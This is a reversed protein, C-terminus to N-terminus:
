PQIYENGDKDVVTGPEGAAPPSQGGPPVAENEGIFVARRPAQASGNEDKDPRMIEHADKWMRLFPGYAGPKGLAADAAINKFGQIMHDAMARPVLSRHRRKGERGESRLAELSRGKGTLAILFVARMANRRLFRDPGRHVGGNSGEPYRILTGGNRGPVAMERGTAGAPAREQPTASAACADADAAGATAKSDHKRGCRKQGQPARKADAM